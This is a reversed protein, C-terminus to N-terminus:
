YRILNAAWTFGGGFAAVLLLDGRKLIGQNKAENMAIPISAASTNGYESINSFVKDEHVGLRKGLATIIRMNAQHTILLDIDEKDVGAYKLAKVSAESMSKVAHKFTEKGEMRVYHLKQDVTEHSTPYRVGNGPMYLLHALKGNSKMYSSLIGSTGDSKGLVVAGSGDGFLVCTSRDDWNTIRSLIETGIVLIKKDPSNKIINDALSLGYLFGSCAASIDFAAANKAGIKDQIICATSPLQQDPTVTANILFDIDGATIGAEKLAKEGSETGLDSNTRGDELIHRREIGSREKIWKDSTDVMKELDHNTLIKDPVAFGMGLIM